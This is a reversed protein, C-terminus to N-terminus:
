LEFIAILPMHDSVDVEPVYKQIVEIDQSTFVFDVVSSKFGGGTKRRLNFSTARKPFINVLYKEINKITKTNVGVNFDGCLIVNEKGKIEKVIKQSMKLREPNDMDDKGWIGQTNFINLIKDSINIKTHQLNRPVSDWTKRKEFTQEEFLSSTFTIKDEKIPFKSFISNGSPIKGNPTVNLYAPAFSIYEFNFKKKFEEITKLNRPLKGKGNHVEQLALIDPNERQIFEVLNDFLKGGLWINISIFKFKM